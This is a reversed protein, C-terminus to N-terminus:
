QIYDTLSSYISARRQLLIKHQYFHAAVNDKGTGVTWVKIGTANHAEWASTSGRLCQFCQSFSFHQSLPWPRMWKPKSWHSRVHLPRLAVHIWLIKRQHFDFNHAIKFNIFTEGSSFRQLACCLLLVLSAINLARFVTCSPFIRQYFMLFWIQSCFVKCNIWYWWRAKCWHFIHSCSTCHTVRRFFLM